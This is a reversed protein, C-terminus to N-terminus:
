ESKVPICEILLSDKFRPSIGASPGSVTGLNRQNVYDYVQYDRNKLGRLEIEGNWSDAYFAYYLTDGKQVVHTEPKDYAIDYLNLYEGRSLMKENYLSIWKKWHAEKEPTLRTDAPGGPWTFKTGVM